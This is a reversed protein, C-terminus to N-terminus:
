AHRFTNRKESVICLGNSPGPLGFLTNSVITDLIGKVQQVLQRLNHLSALPDAVAKNVGVADVSEVIIHSSFNDSHSM